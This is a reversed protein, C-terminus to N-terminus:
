DTSDLLEQLVALRPDIPKKCGCPGENLDRGCQPCVGECGERCLLKSPLNLFLDELIVDQTEMQLSDLLLMDDTEEENVSTVLTHTTNLVFPQQQEKACRDCAFHLPAEIQIRMCVLGSENSVTGKARLPESFPNGGPFSEQSLDMCDEFSLVHGINNFVPELLLKM